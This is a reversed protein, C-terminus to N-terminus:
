QVATEIREAIDATLPLYLQTFSATREAVLTFLAVLYVFFCAAKGAPFAAKSDYELNKHISINCLHRIGVLLM